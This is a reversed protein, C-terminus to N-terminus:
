LFGQAVLRAKYREISRDPHYKVKFIWKCGIPKHNPPLITYCWTQYSDLNWLEEDIAEQWRNRNIANSVAKNYTKPKHVKSNIETISKVLEQPSRVLRDSPNKGLIRGLDTRSKRILLLNHLGEVRMRSQGVPNHSGEAKM